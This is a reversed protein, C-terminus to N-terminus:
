AADSNQSCSLKIGVDENLTNHRSLLELPYFGPDDRHGRSPGLESRFSGCISAIPRPSNGAYCDSSPLEVSCRVGDELSGCQVLGRERDDSRNGAEDATADVIHVLWSYGEAQRVRDPLSGRPNLARRPGANALEHYPRQWNTRGQDLGVGRGTPSGGTHTTPGRGSSLRPSCLRHKRVTM